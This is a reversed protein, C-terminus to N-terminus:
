HFIKHDTIIGSGRLWGRKSILYFVLLSWAIYFGFYIPSGNFAILIKLSFFTSSNNMNSISLDRWLLLISKVINSFKCFFTKEARSHRLPSFVQLHSFTTKVQLQFNCKLWGYQIIHISLDFLLLRQTLTYHNKSMFREIKPLQWIIFEEVLFIEFRLGLFNILSMSRAPAPSSSSDKVSLSPVKRPGSRSFKTLNDFSTSIGTTNDPPILEDSSAISAIFAPALPTAIPESEHKITRM